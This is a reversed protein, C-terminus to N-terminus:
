FPLALLPGQSMYNHLLEKTFNYDYVDPKGNIQSVGHKLCLYINTFLAIQKVM